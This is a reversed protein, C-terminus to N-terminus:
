SSKVKTKAYRAARKALITARNSAYYKARSIKNSVRVKEPNNAKYTALRTKGRASVNYAADRARVKKRNCARYQAKRLREEEPDAPVTVIFGTFSAFFEAGKYHAEVFERLIDEYLGIVKVHDLTQRLVATHKGSVRQVRTVM